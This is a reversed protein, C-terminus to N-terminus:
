AATATLTVTTQQADPYTFSSPANLQLEFAPDTGVGVNDCLLTDSGNLVMIDYDGEGTSGGAGGNASSAKIFAKNAGIPTGYTWDNSGTTHTWGNSKINIDITMPSSNTLVFYSNGTNPTSNATVVGFDYSNHNIAIDPTAPANYFLYAIQSHSVATGPTADICTDLLDNASIAVDVAANGSTVNNLTVTLATTTTANRRLTFLWSNAGPSTALNVYIAKATTAQGLCEVETETATLTSAGCNMHEYQIATSSTNVHTTACTIFNGPTDPLFTCGFWAYTSAPAGSKTIKIDLKDGAAVAVNHAANVDNGSSAAGTLTVTLDTPTGNKVITFTTSTAGGPAQEVEVYLRKLTGSCPFLTQGDFETAQPAVSGILTNFYNTIPNNGALNSLLITEGSTDPTFQCTSYVAACATTGSPSTASISVRDGAAVTVEDTDVSSLVAIDSITVSLATNAMAGGPGVGRRITFTWSKGAGPATTIGVQFNSLKGPTSIITLRALETAGWSLNGDGMLDSYQTANIAPDDSTGSIIIQKTAGGPNYLPQNIQPLPLNGAALAIQTSISLLGSGTVGINRSQWSLSISLLLVIALSIVLLVRYKNKNNM